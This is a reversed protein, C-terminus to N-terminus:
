WEEVLSKQLFAFIRYDASYWDFSFVIYKGNKSEWTYPLLLFWNILLGVLLYQTSPLLDGKSKWTFLIPGQFNLFSSILLCYYNEPYLKTTPDNYIVALSILPALTTQNYDFPGNLAEYASITTDLSCTRLMNLIMEIQPIYQFQLQLPSSKAVTALSSILHYKDTKVGMDAANVCHNGPEVLQIAVEQEKILSQVAKSCENDM